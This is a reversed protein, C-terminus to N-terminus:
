LREILGSVRRNFLWLGLVTVIITWGVFAATLKLNPLKDLYFLNQFIRTFEVLPSMLMLTHLREPVRTFPYVIPTSWFLVQIAVEVLHKLDRFDVYLTCLILSIGWLFVLYIGLYVPYALQVLSFHGGLLPYVVIYVGIAGIWLMLNTLLRAVPILLRPFYIKKLLGANSVLAETSEVAVQNFLIWHIIGTVLYLSFHPQSSPFVYTFIVLYMLTIVLPNVMSWAFGLWAGMYRVKVDKAVLNRVLDRYSWLRGIGTANAM